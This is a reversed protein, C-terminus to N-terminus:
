REVEGSIFPGPENAQHSARELQENDALSHALLQRSFVNALPVAWDSLPSAPDDLAVVPSPPCASVVVLM